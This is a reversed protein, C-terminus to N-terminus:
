RTESSEVAPQNNGAQFLTNDNFNLMGLMWLVSLIIIAVAVLRWWTYTGATFGGGLYKEAFDIKGTYNTVQVNYKMM